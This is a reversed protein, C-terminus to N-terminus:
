VRNASVNTPISPCSRRLGSFAIMMVVRSSRRIAFAGFSIVATSRTADLACRMDFM